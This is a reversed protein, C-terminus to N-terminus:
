DGYNEYYSERIADEKESAICEACRGHRDLLEGCDPCVNDLESDDIADIHNM